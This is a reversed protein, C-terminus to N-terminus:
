LSRGTDADTAHVAVVQYGLLLDARAELNYFNQTFVPQNDNVDILNVTVTVPTPSTNGTVDGARDTAIAHFQLTKTPATEYDMPHRVTIGGDTPHIQYSIIITDVKTKEIYFACFM